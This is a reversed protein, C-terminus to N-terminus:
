RAHWLVPFNLDGRSKAVSVKLDESSEGEVSIPVPIIGALEIPIEDGLLAVTTLEKSVDVMPSSGTLGEKDVVVGKATVLRECDVRTDVVGV